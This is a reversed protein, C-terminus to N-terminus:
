KNFIETEVKRFLFADSTDMLGMDDVLFLIINPRQTEANVSLCGIVFALLLFAVTKEYPFESDRSSSDKVRNTTSLLPGEM